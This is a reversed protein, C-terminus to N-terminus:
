KGLIFQISQCSTSVATHLAGATIRHVPVSAKFDAPQLFVKNSWYSSLTSKNYGIDSSFPPSPRLFLSLFNEITKDAECITLSVYFPAIWIFCKFGQLISDVLQKFYLIIIILSVAFVISDTSVTSM